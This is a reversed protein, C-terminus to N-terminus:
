NEIVGENGCVNGKIIECWEYKQPAKIGGAVDVVLLQQTITTELPMADGNAAHKIWLQRSIM